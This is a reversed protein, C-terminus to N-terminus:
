VGELPGGAPRSGKGQLAPKGGGEHVREMWQERDWSWAQSWGGFVVMRRMWMGSARRAM